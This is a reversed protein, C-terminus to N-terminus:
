VQTGPSTPALICTTDPPPPRCPPGAPGAEAVFLKGHFFAVGRPSDLGSAITTASTSAAAPTPIMAAAALVLAALLYHRSRMRLLRGLGETRRGRPGRFDEDSGPGTDVSLVFSQSSPTPHM